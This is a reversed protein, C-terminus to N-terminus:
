KLNLLEKEEDTLRAILAKRKEEKIRKEEQEKLKEDFVENLGDYAWDGIDWTSKNDKTIYLSDYETSGGYWHIEFEIFNDGHKDTYARYPVNLKTAKILLNLIDTATLNM